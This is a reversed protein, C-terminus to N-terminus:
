EIEVSIRREQGLEKRDKELCCKKYKKGSGCYCPENRGLKRMKVREDAVLQKKEEFATRRGIPDYHEPDFPGGLWRMIREQYLPHSKDKQIELLERYGHVGGCDEPPCARAGDLVVPYKEEGKPMIKEVVVSHQWIDGWDYVYSFTMGEKDLMDGVNTKTAPLAKTHGFKFSRWMTDVAFGMDGVGEILKRGVTFMYAHYNEWGMVQQIVNHLEHFSLCDEVVFRRWIEPEIGDLVIKMQLCHTAEMEYLDPLAEPGIYQLSFRDLFKALRQINKENASVMLMTPLIYAFCKKTVFAYSIELDEDYFMGEDEGLALLQERLDISSVDVIDRMVDNETKIVTLKEKHVFCLFADVVRRHDQDFGLMLRDKLEIYHTFGYANEFEEYHKGFFKKVDMKM